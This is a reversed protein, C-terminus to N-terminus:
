FILASIGFRSSASHGVWFFTDGRKVVGGGHADIKNGDSDLWVAGPAIWGSAALAGPVTYLVTLLSFILM